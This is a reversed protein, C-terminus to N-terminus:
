FDFSGRGGIRPGHRNDVGEWCFAEMRTRPNTNKKNVSHNEQKFKENITKKKKLFIIQIRLISNSYFPCLIMISMQSNKAGANASPKESSNSYCCTELVRRLIRASRLLTTQITKMQGRIELDEMAWDAPATSIVSQVEASPYAGGGVLTRCM